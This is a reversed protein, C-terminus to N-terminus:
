YHRGSFIVPKAHYPEMVVSRDDLCRYPKVGLNTFKPVKRIGSELFARLSGAERLVVELTRQYESSVTWQRTERIFDTLEQDCHLDELVVKQSTGFVDPELFNRLAVPNYEGFLEECVLRKAAEQLKQKNYLMQTKEWNSKFFFFESFGFEKELFSVDVIIKLPPLNKNM